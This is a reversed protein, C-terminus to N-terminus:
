QIALCKKLLAIQSAKIKSWDSNINDIDGASLQWSLPGSTQAVFPVVNV